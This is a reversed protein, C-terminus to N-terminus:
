TMRLRLLLSAQLIHIVLASTDMQLPRSNYSNYMTFLCRLGEFVVKITSRRSTITALLVLYMSM